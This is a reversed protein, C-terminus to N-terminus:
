FKRNLFRCKMAMILFDGNHVMNDWEPNRLRFFFLLLSISPSRRKKLRMHAM